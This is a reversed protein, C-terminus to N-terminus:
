RRARRRLWRLLWWAAGALLLTALGGALLLLRQGCVVVQGDRESWLGNFNALVVPLALLRAKTLPLPREDPHFSARWPFLAGSTDQEVHGGLVSRVPRDRVFAALRGASAAAAAPDSILLRGPLLVDGSLVLADERDYYVLDASSHGPAPIVDVLRGGLDLLSTGEPWASLDLRARVGELDSPFVEVGPQGTFQPDGSRHDLHSHTHAVLLPLRVGERVPLLGLVTAGLPVRDSEAVDGTDVLLARERGLLLYMFPAEPTTCPGERLVATRTDLWRVELPPAKHRGCDDAGADWVWPGGEGIPAAGATRDLGGRPSAGLELEPMAAARSQCVVLVSLVALAVHGVSSM